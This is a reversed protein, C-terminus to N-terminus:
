ASGQPPRCVWLTLTGFQMRIYSFRCAAVMASCRERTSSKRVACASDTLLCLCVIRRVIKENEEEPKRGAVDKSKNAEDINIVARKRSMEEIPRGINPRGNSAWVFVHDPWVGGLQHVCPIGGGVGGDEATNGVSMYM